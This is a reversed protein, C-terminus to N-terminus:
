GPTELKNKAESNKAEKLETAEIKLLILAKNQCCNHTKLGSNLSFSSLFLTLITLNIVKINPIILKIAVNITLANLTSKIENQIRVLEIIDGIHPTNKSPLQNLNVFLFAAIIESINPKNDATIKFKPEIKDVGM